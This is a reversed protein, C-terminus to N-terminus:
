EINADYFEVREAKLLKGLYQDLAAQAKRSSYDLFVQAKVSDYPQGEYRGDRHAEYYNRVDLSDISVQPMIKDVVYQDVLLKRKLDDLQRQVEPEEHYGERRAARYILEGAVYQHAFDIKGQRHTFEKQTEPPLKQIEREVEHLWVPDDGIKAVMVSGTDPSSDDIDTAASLERQADAMRGMKELATVLNRSAQNVFSGDPDLAKARVYYAAANSYDQLDEFYIRGILYNVNARESTELAEIELLKNYEDVAAEYLKNDRLQGALKKHRAIAESYDTQACSLALLVL